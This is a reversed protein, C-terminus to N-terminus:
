DEGYFDLIAQFLEATYKLSNYEWPGYGKGLSYIRISFESSSVHSEHVADEITPYYLTWAFKYKIADYFMFDSFSYIWVAHDESHKSLKGQPNAEEVGDLAYPFLDLMDSCTEMDFDVSLNKIKTKRNFKYFSTHIDQEIKEESKYGEAAQLDWAMATAKHKHKHSDENIGVATKNEFPIGETDHPIRRRLESFKHGCDVSSYHTELYIQVDADKENLKEGTKNRLFETLERIGDMRPKYKTHLLTNSLKVQYERTEMIDAEKPNNRDLQYAFNPYYYVYDPQATVQEIAVLYGLLFAVVVAVFVFLFMGLVMMVIETAGCSVRQNWSVLSKKVDSFSRPGDYSRAM